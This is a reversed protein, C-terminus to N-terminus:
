IKVTFYKLKQVSTSTIKTRFLSYFQFSESLKEFNGRRKEAAPM